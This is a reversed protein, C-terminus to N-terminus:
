SPRHFATSGVPHNLPQGVAHTALAKGPLDGAAHFGQGPPKAGPKVKPDMPDDTGVAALVPFFHFGQTLDVAGRRRELIM